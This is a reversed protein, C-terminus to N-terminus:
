KRVSFGNDDDDDGPRKDEFDNDSDYQDVDDDDDNDEEFTAYIPISSCRTGAGIWKIGTTFM